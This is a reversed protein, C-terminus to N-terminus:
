LALHGNHQLQVKKNEKHVKKVVFWICVTSHELDRQTKKLRHRYDNSQCFLALEGGEVFWFHLVSCSVGKQEDSANPAQYVSKMRFALYRHKYIHWVLHEVNDKEEKESESHFVTQGLTERMGLVAGLAWDRPRSLLLGLGERSKWWWLPAQRAGLCWSHGWSEM